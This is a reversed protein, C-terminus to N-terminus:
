RFSTSRFGARPAPSGTGRPEHATSRSRPLGHWQGGSVDRVRQDMQDVQGQLSDAQGEIWRLSTLHANLITAIQAVPDIPNGDDGELASAPQSSMGAAHTLSNVDEILSGLNKGIDELQGNLLDARAYAREREADPGGSAQVDPVGDDGLLDNVQREYADMAKTLQAQQNEIYELSQEMKTQVPFTQQLAEDLRGIQRLKRILTFLRPTLWVCRTAM